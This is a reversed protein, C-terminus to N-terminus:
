RSKKAPKRAPKAPAKEAAAALAKRCWMVMEDPDDLCTQPATWYPMNVTKGSKGQYLFPQQGLAKLEDALAGTAKLYFIDGDFLCAFITPGSYFGLAGFMKKPTVKGLGQMMGLLEDAVSPTYSM